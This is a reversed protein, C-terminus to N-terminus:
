MTACYFEDNGLFVPRLLRHPQLPQEDDVNGLLREVLTEYLCEAVSYQAGQVPSLILLLALIAFDLPLDWLTRLDSEHGVILVNVKVVNSHTVRM